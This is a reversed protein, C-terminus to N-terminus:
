RRFAAEDTIIKKMKLRLNMKDIESNKFISLFSLTKKHFYGHYNEVPKDRIM